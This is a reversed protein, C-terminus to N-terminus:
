LSCVPYQSKTEFDQKIDICDPNINKIEKNYKKPLELIELQFPLNNLEKNYESNFNFKIIKISNPLNNLELNFHLGFNIEEISNPLNDLTHNFKCM